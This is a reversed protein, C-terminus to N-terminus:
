GCLDNGGAQAFDGRGKVKPLKPQKNVLNGAHLSPIKNKCVFIVKDELVNAMFIISQELKDSLRDVLEKLVETELAFAKSILVNNSGITM